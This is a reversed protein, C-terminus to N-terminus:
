CVSFLRPSDEFFIYNQLSTEFQQLGFQLLSAFETRQLVNKRKPMSLVKADAKDTPAAESKPEHQVSHKAKCPSVTRSVCCSAPVPQISKRFGEKYKM